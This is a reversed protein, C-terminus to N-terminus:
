RVLWNPSYPLRYLGIHNDDQGGRDLYGLRALRNIAQSLNGQKMHLKRGLWTQKIPRHKLYDLQGHLYVYVSLDRPKLEPDTAATLLSKPIM